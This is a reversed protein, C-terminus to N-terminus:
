KFLFNQWFFNYSKKILSNLKKQLELYTTKNSTIGKNFSTVKIDFDTKGVLNAQKLRATFSETTLKKFEHTAIYKDYNPIKKEVESIKTNFVTATM